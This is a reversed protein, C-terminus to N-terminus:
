AADPEAGNLEAEIRDREARELAEYDVPPLPTRSSEAEISALRNREAARNFIDDTKSM